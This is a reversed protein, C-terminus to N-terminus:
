SRFSFRSRRYPLISGLTCVRARLSHSICQRTDARSRRPTGATLTSSILIIGCILATTSTTYRRSLLQTRLSRTGGPLVLDVKATRGPQFSPNHRRQTEKIYKDLFSLRDIVDATIETNEDIDNDILEQLLKEQMGRTRSLVM